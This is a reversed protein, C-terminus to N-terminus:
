EAHRVKEFENMPVEERLRTSGMSSTEPVQIGRVGLSGVRVIWATVFIVVASLNKVSRFARSYDRAIPLPAHTRV